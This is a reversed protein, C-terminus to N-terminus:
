ERPVELVLGEMIENVFRMRGALDGGYLDTRNNSNTQMSQDVLYGNAGHIEVFDFGADVANRAAQIFEKVSLQIESVTMARLGEDGAQHPAQPDKKAPDQIPVDGFGTWDYGWGRVLERDAARGMGCIQASILSGREHVAKTVHKWDAVQEASWIGPVSPYFGHLRASVM